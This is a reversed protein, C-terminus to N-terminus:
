EELRVAELFGGCEKGLGRARDRVADDLDPRQLVPVLLVSLVSRGTPRAKPQAKPQAKPSAKTQAKPRVTLRARPRARQDPGEAGVPPYRGCGHGRARGRRPARGQM